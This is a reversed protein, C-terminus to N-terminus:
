PPELGRGESSTSEGNSMDSSISTGKASHEDIIVLYLTTWSKLPCNIHTTIDNVM